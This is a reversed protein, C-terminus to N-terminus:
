GQVGDDDLLGHQLADTLATARAEADDPDEGQGVQEVMPSLDKDLLINSKALERKSKGKWWKFLNEWEKDSLGNIVDDKAFNRLYGVFERAEEKIKEEDARDKIDDWRKSICETCTTNYPDEDLQFWDDPPVYHFGERCWRFGPQYTSNRLATSHHGGGNWHRRGHYHYGSSVYRQREFRKGIYHLKLKRTIRAVRGTITTDVRINGILVCFRIADTVQKTTSAFVLVHHKGMQVRAFCTPNETRALYVENKHIFATASPGDTSEFFKPLKEIGYAKVFDCFLESDVGSSKDLGWKDRIGSIDIMWGNHVSATDGHWFPQAQHYTQGGCTPMRTHTLACEVNGLGADFMGHFAKRTVYKSPDMARKYLRRSKTGHVYAGASQRGRDQGYYVLGSVLKEALHPPLPPRAVFGGISCM